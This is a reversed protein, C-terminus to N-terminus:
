GPIATPEPAGAVPLGSRPPIGCQGAIAEMVETMYAFTQVLLHCHEPHDKLVAVANAMARMGSVAMGVQWAPDALLAESEPSLPM